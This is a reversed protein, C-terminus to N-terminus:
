EGSEGLRVIDDLSHAIEMGLQGSVGMREPDLKRTRLIVAAKEFWTHALHHDGLTLLAMHTALSIIAADWGAPIETVDADNELAEPDRQLLLRLTYVDDPVKWLRLRDGFWTWITPFGEVDNDLALFHEPKKFMLLRGQSPVAVSKIGVVGETSLEYAEQSAVTPLVEETLLGQFDIAGAIETYARNVIGLIRDWEIREGGINQYVENAMELLTTQGM